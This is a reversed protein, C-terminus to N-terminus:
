KLAKSKKNGRYLIEKMRFQVIKTILHLPMPKELPFQISGNGTKYGAFDKEFLANGTPVPYLGM